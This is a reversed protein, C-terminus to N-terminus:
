GNLTQLLELAENRQSAKGKRIVDQLLTNALDRDGQQICTKALNLKYQTTAPDTPDTLRNLGRKQRPKSQRAPQPQAAPEPTDSDEDAMPPVPPMDAPKLTNLRSLLEDLGGGLRPQDMAAASAAPTERVPRAAHQAPPPTGYDYRAPPPVPPPPETRRTSWLIGLLGTVAVSGAGLLLLFRNSVPIGLLTAQEDESQMRSKEAEANAGASTAPVPHTAALVSKRLTDNQLQLQEQLSEVQQELQQLQSRIKENEGQLQLKERHIVEMIATNDVAPPSPQVQHSSPHTTAVPAVVPAPATSAPPPLPAQVPQPAATIPQHPLQPSVAAPPPTKSAAASAIGGQLNEVAALISARKVSNSRRLPAFIKRAQEATLQTILQMEPIKLIEGARLALGQEQFADPNARILAIVMQENSIGSPRSIQRAVSWLTDSKRVPGYQRDDISPAPEAPYQAATARALPARYTRAVKQPPGDLAVVLQLQPDTIRGTSSIDIRSAGTADTVVQLNLNQLYARREIGAASFDDPSAVVAKVSAASEGPELRIPISARLPENQSSSVQIEGLTVAQPAEPVLLASLCCLYLTNRKLV